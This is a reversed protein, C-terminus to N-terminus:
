IKLLFEKLDTDEHLNLKKKLRYRAAQVSRPDIHLINAIEKTQMHLKIFICHRLEIDTLSPYLSSLTDVFGLHVVNFHKKLSGWEDELELNYVIKSSVQKLNKNYGLTNVTEDIDRKVEKLLQKNTLANISLNMMELDKSKSMEELVAIKQNLTAEKNKSNKWFNFFLIFLLILSLLITFTLIKFIHKYGTVQKIQLNKKEIAQNHNLEKLKLNLNLNKIAQEKLLLPIMESQNSGILELNFLCDSSTAKAQHISASIINMGAILDEPSLLKTQVLMENIENFVLANAKTTDTVVGLPMNNRMVERGNLYVVVGDDRQVELKYILYKFPDDILFTKKFYKTIHKNRPDNGFSINTIVFRDGYGLPSAGNKWASTNKVSYWDLPLPGEADYYFWNDGTAIIKKQGSLEMFTLCFVVLLFSNRRINKM